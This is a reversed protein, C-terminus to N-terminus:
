VNLSRLKRLLEEAKPILAALEQSSKIPAYRALNNLQFLEQL